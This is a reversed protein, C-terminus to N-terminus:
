DKSLAQQKKLKKIAWDYHSATASIFYAGLTTTGTWSFSHKSFLEEQSFGGLWKMVEAHTGKLLSKSDSLTTAQHKEWFAVNMDPYNRWNYPQPLFDRKEGNTNAKVWALLLQHWEYLHILIDRLNKDRKWHAEKKKEDKSFEFSINLEEENLKSILLNLKEYNEKANNILDEKTTARPM